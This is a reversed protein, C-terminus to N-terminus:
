VSRNHDQHKYRIWLYIYETGMKAGV